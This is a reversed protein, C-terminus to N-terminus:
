AERTRKKVMKLCRRAAAAAEGEGGNDNDSHNRASLGLGGLGKASRRPPRQPPTRAALKLKLKEEEDFNTERVRLLCEQYHKINFSAGFICDNFNCPQAFSHDRPQTFERLVALAWLSDSPPIGM